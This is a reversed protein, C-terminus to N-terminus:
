EPLFGSPKLNVIEERSYGLISLAKENVDVINHNVDAIFIGIAAQEFLQRFQKESNKLAEESKKKRTVDRISSVVGEIREDKKLPYYIIDLNVKGIEPFERIMEYQVAEGKLCKDLNPKVTKEFHKEGIVERAKHGIIEEHKLQYYKLYTNNVCIYNYDADVVAMMDKTSEIMRKYIELDDEQKELTENRKQLEENSARLEEESTELEKSIRYYESVDRFVLVVGTINGEKDRIPSASDGIQCETGDNSILLTNKALWEINGSELVKSVPSHVTKRTQANIIQFVETLKKDEAKTESWGTLREAIPNMFKIFGNVDITMVADGISNLTVEYNKEKEQLYTLQTKLKQNEKILEEYTPNEKRM